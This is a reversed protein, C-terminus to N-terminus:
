SPLSYKSDPGDGKAGWNSKLGDVHEFLDPKIPGWMPDIIFDIGERRALKAAPVFDSDGSILIIQNVQQKFSLSAIDLGIKMDVGKQELGIAFDQETLDIISKSGNMVRKTIEYKISYNATNESIRGMRLALKRQKKLEEFFQTAWQYMPTKGLDITRGLLPHFVKRSIPPCDYYFVRYLQRPIEGDKMKLHEYCYARLEKARMEPSKEGWLIVARKRYFGGDILIATKTM